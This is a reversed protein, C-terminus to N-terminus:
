RGFDGFAPLASGAARGLAPKLSFLSVRAQNRAVGWDNPDGVEEVCDAGLLCARRDQSHTLEGPAPEVPRRLVPM